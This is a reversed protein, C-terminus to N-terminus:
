FLCFLCFWAALNNKNMINWEKGGTLITLVVFGKSLQSGVTKIFAERIATNESCDM